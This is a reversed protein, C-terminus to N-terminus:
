GGDERRSKKIRVEGTELNLKLSARYLIKTIMRSDTTVVVAELSWPAGPILTHYMHATAVPSRRM